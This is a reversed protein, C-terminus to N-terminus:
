DGAGLYEGLLVGPGEDQDKLGEESKTSNGCVESSGADPSHSTLTPLLPHLYISNTSHMQDQNHTYPHTHINDIYM